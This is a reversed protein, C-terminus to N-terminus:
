AKRTFADKFGAVWNEISTMQVPLKKLAENM